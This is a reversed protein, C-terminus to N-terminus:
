LFALLGSVQLTDRPLTAVESGMELSRIFANGTWTASDHPSSACAVYYCRQAIARSITSAPAGRAGRWSPPAALYSCCAPPLFHTTTPVMAAATTTTTTAARTLSTQVPM